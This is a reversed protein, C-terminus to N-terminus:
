RSGGAYLAWGILRNVIAASASAGLMTDFRRMAARSLRSRTAERDLLSRIPVMWDEARRFGAVLLGPPPYGGISSQAPEPLVTAVGVAGAEVVSRTDDAIDGDFLPPTWLHVAWRALVDPGPRDSHVVVRRHGLLRVPIPSPDGVLEVRAGPREALVKLVGEAVASAYEPAPAGDCGAHWGIVPDSFRDHGRRAARLEAARVRTLLVPLLHARIGMRRLLTNVAPSGTTANGVTMVLRATSTSLNLGEDPLTGTVIASSEVHAITPRAAIRRADLVEPLGAADVEQGVMLLDTERLADPKCSGLASIHATHGAAVLHDVLGQLPHEPVDVGDGTVVLVSRRTVPGDAPVALRKRRTTATGAAGPAPPDAPPAPHPGACLRNVLLVLGPADIQRGIRARTRGRARGLRWSVLEETAAVDPVLEVAVTSRDTDCWIPIKDLADGDLAVVVDPRLARISEESPLCPQTLQLGEAIELMALRGEVHRRVLNNVLSRAWDLAEVEPECALFVVVPRRPFPPRGSPSADELPAVPRWPDHVHAGPDVLLNAGDVEVVDDRVEFAVDPRLLAAGRVTRRNAEVADSLPRMCLREAHVRYSAGPPLPGTEAVVGLIRGPARALQRAMRNQTLEDIVWGDPIALVASEAEHTAELAASSSEPSLAVDSV